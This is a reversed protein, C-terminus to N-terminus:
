GFLKVLLVLELVLILISGLPQSGCGCSLGINEDKVLIKNVNKTIGIFSFILKLWFMSGKHLWQFQAICANNTKVKPLPADLLSTLSIKVKKSGGEGKIVMNRLYQPWLFILGEDVRNEHRWKHIVKWGRQWVRNNYSHDCLFASFSM